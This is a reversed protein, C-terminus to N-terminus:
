LSASDAPTVVIVVRRNQQRGEATANDAVPDQEGLGEARIRRYDFGFRALAMRVSEARQRSLNANYADDGESDTHGEVMAGRIGVGVLAATLRQLSAATQDRLDARDFEFLVRNELGLEYNGDVYRFGQGELTRVQYPSFGQRYPVSQCAVLTLSLTAAVLLGISRAVIQM